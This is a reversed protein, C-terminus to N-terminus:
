RRCVRRGAITLAARAAEVRAAAIRLDLNYAIAEKVLADIRPDALTVLWDDAVTGHTVSVTSWHEPAPANPGGGQPSGRTGASEPDLM